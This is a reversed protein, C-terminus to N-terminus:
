TKAQEPAACFFGRDVFGEEVQREWDALEEEVTVGGEGGSGGAVEVFGKGRWEIEAHL